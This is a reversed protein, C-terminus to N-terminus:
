DELIVRMRSAQWYDGRLNFLSGLLARGTVGHEKRWQYWKWVLLGVTVPLAYWAAYTANYVATLVLPWPQGVSAFMTQFTPLVFVTLIGGAPLIILELWILTRLLKMSTPLRGWVSDRVRLARPYWTQWWDPQGFVYHGIRRWPHGRSRRSVVRVLLDLLAAFLLLLTIRSTFELMWRDTWFEYVYSAMLGRMWSLYSTAAGFIYALLMLYPGRWSLWSQEDWAAGEQGLPASVGSGSLARAFDAATQWRDERKSALARMVSTTVQPPADPVLTALDSPTETVQKFVLEHLNRAQIPPRGSMIEYAVVGLAYIDARGDIDREGAAQEPRM